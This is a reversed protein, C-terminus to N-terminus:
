DPLAGLVLEAHGDPKVGYMARAVRGDKDILFTSREIGMSKRGNTEKEVWVGYRESVEHDSDSLLTFPLGYRDRFRVHAQPSDRSVGLVVVGREQFDDYVDRIGCAQRTCGPTDDRPYFYLVGPKGRLSSLTVPQGADSTLTFDPALEGEEVM